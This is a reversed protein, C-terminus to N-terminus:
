FVSNVSYLTTKSACIAININIRHLILTISSFCLDLNQLICANGPNEQPSKAYKQPSNGDLAVALPRNSLFSLM